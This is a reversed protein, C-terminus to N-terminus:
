DMRRLMVADIRETLMRGLADLANHLERFRDLYNNRIEDQDSRVNELRDNMDRVHAECKDEVRDGRGRRLTIVAVALSGTSVVMGVIAAVLFVHDM